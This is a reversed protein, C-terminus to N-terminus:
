NGWKEWIKGNEWDPITITNGEFDKIGHQVYLFMSKNRPASFTM